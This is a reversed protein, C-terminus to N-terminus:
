KVPAGPLSPRHGTSHLLPISPWIRPRHHRSQSQPIWQRLRVVFSAGTLLSPLCKPPCSPKQAPFSGGQPFCRVSPVSTVSPTQANSPPLVKTSLETELRSLRADPFSCRVSPVSTVSPTQANSPPLVKPSLKAEPRSLRMPSFMACLAASRRWGTYFAEEHRAAPDQVRLAIM